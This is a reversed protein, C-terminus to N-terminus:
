LAYETIIHYVLFILLISNFFVTIGLGMLPLFPMNFASIIDLFGIEAGPPMTTLMFARLLVEWIFGLIWTFVMLLKLARGIQASEKWIFGVLADIILLIAFFLGFVGGLLLTQPILYNYFLLNGTTTELKLAKVWLLIAVLYFLGIIFEFIRKTADTLKEEGMFFYTLIIGLLLYIAAAGYYMGTDLTTKAADVLLLSLATIFISGGFLVKAMKEEKIIYTIIALILGLFGLYYLAKAIYQFGYDYIIDTARVIGIYALASILVAFGGLYRSIDGMKVEEKLM